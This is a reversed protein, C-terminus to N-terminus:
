RRRRAVFYYVTAATASSIAFISISSSIPDNTIPSSINTSSTKVAEPTIDTIAADGVQTNTNDEGNNNGDADPLTDPTTTSATRFTFNSTQSTNNLRDTAVIYAQYDTNEELNSLAFKVSTQTIVNNYTNTKTEYDGDSGAKRYFLKASALGSQSDITEVGVASSADANYLKPSSAFGPGQRDIYKVETEAYKIIGNSGRIWYRYVGNSTIDGSTAAGYNSREEAPIITNLGSPQSTGAAFATSLVEERAVYYAELKDTRTWDTARPKLGIRGDNFLSNFDVIGNGYKESPFRLDAYQELTGITRARNYDPNETQIQAAAAALFPASLSTGAGSNISTPTETGPIQMIGGPMAFDIGGAGYNSFSSLQRNSDISSVAIVDECNAPFDIKDRGDNGSAAIIIAGKESAHMIELFMREETQQCEANNDGFSLNLITAGDNVVANYAAEMVSEVNSTEGNADLVKYPLIKVNNPTSQAIIGAVATGHGNDDSLSNNHNVYNITNTTYAIRNNNFVIHNSYIGSDLVAVKVINNNKALTNWNTYLDLGTEKVGWSRLETSYGNLLPKLSVNNETIQKLRRNPTVGVIGSNTKLANYAERTADVSDFDLRYYNSFIKKTNPYDKIANYDSVEVILSKLSYDIDDSAQETSPKDDIIKAPIQDEIIVPETNEETKAQLEEPLDTKIEEIVIEDELISEEFEASAGRGVNVLCLIGAILVFALSLFSFHKAFFDKQKKVM